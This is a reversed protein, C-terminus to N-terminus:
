ANVRYRKNLTWFALGGIFSFAGVLIFADQWFRMPFLRILTDSFLFLWTDGEFFIRHFVTFVQRFNIILFLFMAGILMMTIVGGRAVMGRFSDMWGGRWAWVVVVLLFGLVFYWIILIASTLEKVDDMHRLERQNFMSSGDDFKLEGLFSIDEDNLLYDLAVPAWRLREEQTLGYSDEPFNPMRYELKIFWPTLLLRIGTLIIALPIILSVVWGIFTKLFSVRIM